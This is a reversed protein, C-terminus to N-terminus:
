LSLALLLLRSLPILYTPCAKEAPPIVAAANNAVRGAAVSAAATGPEAIIAEAIVPIVLNPPPSNVFNVPTNLPAALTTGATGPAGPTGAAAAAGPNNDRAARLVVAIVKPDIIICYIVPM